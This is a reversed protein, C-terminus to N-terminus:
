GKDVVYKVSNLDSLFALNMLVTLGTAKSATDPHAGMEILELFGDVIVADFSRNSLLMELGNNAIM